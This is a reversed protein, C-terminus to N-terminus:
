NDEGDHDLGYADAIWRWYALSENDLSGVKPVDAKRARNVEYAVAELHYAANDWDKNAGLLAAICDLRYLAEEVSEYRDAAAQRTDDYASM